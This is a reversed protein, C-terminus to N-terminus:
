HTNNNQYYLLLKIALPKNVKIHTQTRDCHYQIFHNTLHNQLINQLCKHCETFIILHLQKIFIDNNQTHNDM